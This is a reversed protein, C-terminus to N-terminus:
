AERKPGDERFQRAVALLFPNGREALEEAVKNLVQSNRKHERISKNVSWDPEDSDRLKAVITDASEIVAEQTRHALKHLEQGLGDGMQGSLSTLATQLGYLRELMPRVVGGWKAPALIAWLFAGCLIMPGVVVLAVLLPGLANLVDPLADVTVVELTQDGAAGAPL